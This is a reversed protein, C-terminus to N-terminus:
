KEFKLIHDDYSSEILHTVLVFYSPAAVLLAM